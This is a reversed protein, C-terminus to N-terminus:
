GRCGVIARSSVTFGVTEQSQLEGLIPVHEDLNQDPLKIDQFDKNIVALLIDKFEAVCGWSLGM